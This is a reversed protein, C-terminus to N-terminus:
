NFHILDKQFFLENWKQKTIEFALSGFEVKNFSDFDACGLVQKCFRAKLYM